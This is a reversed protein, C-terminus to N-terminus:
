LLFSCSQISVNATTSSSVTGGDTTTTNTTTATSSRNATRSNNGNHSSTSPRGSSNSSLGTTWATSPQTPPTRRISTPQTPVPTSQLVLRILEQKEKCDQFSINKKQLFDCLDKIKIKQLYERHEHPAKFSRCILCNTVTTDVSPIGEKFCEKCFDRKCSSCNKQLQLNIPMLVRTDALKTDCDMYNCPM